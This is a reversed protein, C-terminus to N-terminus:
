VIEKFGEPLIFSTGVSIDATTVVPKTVANLMGNPLMGGQAAEKARLLAEPLVGFRCILIVIGSQVQRLQFLLCRYVKVVPHHGVYKGLIILVQIENLSVQM